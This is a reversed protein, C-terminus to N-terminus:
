GAPPSALSGGPSHPSGDTPGPGRVMVYRVIGHPFGRFETARRYGLSEYFAPAQFSFTELFYTRCGRSAAREEFMRVLRAGVGRRRHAPDVWLQQLECCEGWTRGVAGGVVAGSPLRAFCSLRRVEDLPAAADNAEGLGHDVLRGELEPVDDHVDWDLAPGPSDTGAPTM